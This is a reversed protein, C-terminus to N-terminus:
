GVAEETKRSIFSFWADLFRLIIKFPAELIFDFAFALFNLKTLGRSLRSGISLIPLYIIDTLGSREKGVGKWSYVKAVQVIRYAFFAIITLFFVFIIKSFFTFGIENLIFYIFGFVGVFFITYLATFIWYAFSHSELSESDVLVDEELNLEDFNHLISCTRAVLAEREEIKPLRIQM